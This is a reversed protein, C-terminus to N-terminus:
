EHNYKKGSFHSRGMVKHLASMKPNPAARRVAPRKATTKGISNMYAEDEKTITFKKAM